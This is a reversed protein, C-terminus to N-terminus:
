STVFYRKQDILDQLPYSPVACRILPTTIVRYSRALM